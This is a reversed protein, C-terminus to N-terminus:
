LAYNGKQRDKLEAKKSKNWNEIKSYYGVIRSVGYVNRSGCYPCFPEEQSTELSQNQVVKTQEM